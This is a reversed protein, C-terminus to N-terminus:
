GQNTNTQNGWTIGSTVTGATTTAGAIIYNVRLYRKCDIPLVDVGFQLGAVLDALAYVQSEAIVVNTTDMAEEDATEIQFQLTAAGGSTVDATLQTLISVPIGKGVNRSLASAAGYVTGPAGTDLINTSNYTGIVQSIDQDTSFKEQESFIMGAGAMGIAPGLLQSVDFTAAAAPDASGVTAITVTVALLMLGISFLKKM